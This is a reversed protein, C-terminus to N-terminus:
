VKWLRCNKGIQLKSGRLEVPRKRLINRKHSLEQRKWPWILYMKRQYYILCIDSSDTKNFNCFFWSEWRISSTIRLLHQQFENRRSCGWWNQSYVGYRGRNENYVEHFNIRFGNAIADFSFFYQSTLWYLYLAILSWLVSSNFRKLQNNRRHIAVACM